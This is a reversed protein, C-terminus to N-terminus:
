QDPKLSVFRWSGCSQVLWCLVLAFFNPLYRYYTYSEEDQSSTFIVGLPLAGAPGSCLIPTVTTSLQDLHSTTDVLVVEGAERFKQQVKLMFVTVLVM